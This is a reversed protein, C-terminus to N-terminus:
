ELIRWLPEVHIAIPIGGIGHIGYALTDWLVHPLFAIEQAHLAMASGTVMLSVGLGVQVIHRRAAPHLIRRCRPLRRILQLRHLDIRM